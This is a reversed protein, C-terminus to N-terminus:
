TQKRNKAIKQTSHLPIDFQAAIETQYNRAQFEHFQHANKTYQHNTAAKRNLKFHTHM